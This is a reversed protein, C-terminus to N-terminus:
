DNALMRAKEASEIATILAKAYKKQEALLDLDMSDLKDTVSKLNNAKVKTEKKVKEESYEKNIIDVLQEFSIAEIDGSKFQLGYTKALKQRKKKDLSLKGTEKDKRIPCFKKVVTLLSPSTNGISTVLPLKNTLLTNVAVAQKDTFTGGIQVTNILNVALEGLWVPDTKANLANINSTVKSAKYQTFTTM